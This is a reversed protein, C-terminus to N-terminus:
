HFKILSLIIKLNYENYIKKYKLFLIVIYYYNITENQSEINIVIIQFSFVVISIM